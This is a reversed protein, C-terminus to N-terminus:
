SCLPEFRLFILFVSRRDFNVPEKFFSHLILIIHFGHFSPLNSTSLPFLALFRQCVTFSFNCFCILLYRLSLFPSLHLLIRLSPIEAVKSSGLPIRSSQFCDTEYKKPLEALNSVSLPSSKTRIAIYPCQQRWGLLGSQMWTVVTVISIMAAKKNTNRHTLSM